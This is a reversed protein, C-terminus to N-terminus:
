LRHCVRDPQSETLSLLNVDAGRWRLRIAHEGSPGSRIMFGMKIAPAKLKRDLHPPRAFMLRTAVIRAPCRPSFFSGRIPGGGRVNTCTARRGKNGAGRWAGVRSTSQNCQGFTRPRWPADYSTGRTDWTVARQNRNPRIQGMSTGPHHGCHCKEFRIACLALCPSLGLTFSPEGHQALGAPGLDNDLDVRSRAITLAM